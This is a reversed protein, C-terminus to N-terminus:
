NGLNLLHDVDEQRTLSDEGSHDDYGSGSLLDDARDYLNGAQKKMMGEYSKSVTKDDSKRAAEYYSHYNKSKEAERGSYRNKYAEKSTSEKITGAKRGENYKQEYKAEAARDAKINQQEKFEPDKAMNRMREIKRDRAGKEYDSLQDRRTADFEKRANAVYDGTAKGTATKVATKGMEKVDGADKLAANVDGDSEIYTGVFRESADTIEDKVIDQGYDWVKSADAKKGLWTKDGTMGDLGEGILTSTATSAADVLIKKGDTADNWGAELSGERISTGVFRNAAGTVVAEGTKIAVKAGVRVVPSAIKTSSAVAKASGLGVASTIAGTIGGIVAEKGVDGWNVRDLGGGYIDGVSQNIVSNAASSVAGVTAGIAIAVAPGAAGATAVTVIAGVIGIALTLGFAAAQRAKLEEERRAIAADLVEQNKEFETKHVDKYTKQAQYAESVTRFTEVFQTRDYAISRCDSSVTVTNGDDILKRMSDLMKQIEEFGSSTFKSEENDVATKLKSANNKISTLKKVVGPETYYIHVIDSINGIQGRVANHITEAESIRKEADHVINQLEDTYIVAHDYSDVGLYDAAYGKCRERYLDTLSFFLTLFCGHIDQYYNKFREAAKGAWAEDNYADDMTKRAEDLLNDWSHMANRLSDTVRLLDDGNYQFGM